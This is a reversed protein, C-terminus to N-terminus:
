TSTYPDIARAQPHSTETPHRTSVCQPQTSTAHTWAPATPAGSTPTTPPSCTLGATVDTLSPQHMADRVAINTATPPRTRDEDTSPINLNGIIITPALLSLCSYALSLADLFDKTEEGFPVHTLLM